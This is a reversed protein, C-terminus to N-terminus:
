GSAGPAHSRSAKEQGGEGKPPRGTSNGAEDLGTTQLIKRNLEEMRKRTEKELDKELMAEVDEMTLEPHEKRLCMWTCISRGERSNMFTMVENDTAKTKEPDGALRDFLRDMLANKISPNKELSEAYAGFQDVPDQARRDLIIAEIAGLDALNLGSLRWKKGDLTIEVWSSTGM